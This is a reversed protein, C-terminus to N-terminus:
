SVGQIAAVPANVLEKLSKSKYSKDVAFNINLPHPNPPCTASHCTVAAYFSEANPNGSLSVGDTLRRRLV